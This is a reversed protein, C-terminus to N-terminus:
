LSNYLMLSPQLFLIEKLKKNVIKLCKRQNPWTLLKLAKKYDTLKYSSHEKKEIKIKKSIIEASFLIFSQGKFGIRNPFEKSYKYKGKINFKKINFPNQGIEEKAERKVAELIQEKKEIGGKPFEWGKWHLKRKLILYLIKNKEKKYLVIFVGKRYKKM